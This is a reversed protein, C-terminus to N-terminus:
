PAGAALREPQAALGLHSSGGRTRAVIERFRREFVSRDFKRAEARLRTPDFRMEGLRDLAGRVAEVTPADFLIGTEGPRVIDPAGGEACAIVPKGAALAEAMVMGFDDVAPHLLARCGAYLQDLERDSVWGKFTVNPGALRALKAREPGEGVVVLRESRGALARVALAVRKNPVLASVLLLPAEAGGGDAEAAMAEFRATEIPPHIVDSPRGYYRLIRDRTYSSNAILVHPRAGAATDWRRLYGAMRRFAWRGLGGGPVSAEYSAQGERVYRM